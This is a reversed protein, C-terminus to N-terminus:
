KINDIENVIIETLVTKMNIYESEFDGLNEKEINQINSSGKICVYKMNNKNIIHVVTFERCLMKKLVESFTKNFFVKNKNLLFM